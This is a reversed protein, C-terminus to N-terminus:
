SATPKDASEKERIEDNIMRMQMQANEITRLNDYASAKLQELSMEKLEM